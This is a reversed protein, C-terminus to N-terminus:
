CLGALAKVEAPSYVTGLESANTITVVSPQVAHLEGARALHREVDAPRLKGDTTPCTLLKVGAYREIAGAEDVAVHAGEACVVAEHGHNAAEIARLVAPHAGAANDSLFSRRQVRSRDRAAVGM